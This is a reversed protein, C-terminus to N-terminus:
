TNAKWDQVLGQMTVEYIVKGGEDTGKPTIAEVGKGKTDVLTVNERNFTPLYEDHFCPRKCFQRYYPELAQATEPAKVVADGESQMVFLLNFLLNRVIDTWGDGVLDEEADGGATLMQFNDMRVQHWGPQLHEAWEPDTPQDDRVDISSPTRQFVYLRGADRVLHPICQVATAGTGIIGVREDNWQISAVATQFLAACYLDFRRAIARCHAFIERGPSYQRGPLDGLEELMPLYMYSEIDCAIGPYRNWHWTGGFGGGKEIIRMDDVGLERLRAGTLLGGFGGGIIVVDVEDELPERTFGPDVNPDDVFHAFRGSPEIYQAVGDARMRKRREADYKERLADVDFDMDSSSGREQTDSM